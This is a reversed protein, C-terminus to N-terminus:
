SRDATAANSRLQRVVEALSQPHVGAECLRVCIDLTQASLGTNLLQSINHINQRAQQNQTLRLYASAASADTTSTTTPSPQSPPQDAAGGVPTSTTKRMQSCNNITQYNLEGACM